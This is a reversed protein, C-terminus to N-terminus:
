CTADVFGTKNAPITYTCERSACFASFSADTILVSEDGIKDAPRACTRDSVPDPRRWRRRVEAGAGGCCIDLKDYDTAEGVNYVLEGVGQHEGLM